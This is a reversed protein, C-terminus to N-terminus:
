VPSSLLWEAPDAHAEHAIVLWCRPLATLYVQKVCDAPLGGYRMHFDGANLAVASPLERRRRRGPTPGWIGFRGAGEAPRIGIWRASLM